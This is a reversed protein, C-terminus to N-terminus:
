ICKQKLILYLKWDLFIIGAATLYKDIVEIPMCPVKSTENVCWHFSIDFYSYDNLNSYGQLVLGTINSKDLCYM